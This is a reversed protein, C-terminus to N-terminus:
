MGRSLELYERLAPITVLSSPCENSHAGQNALKERESIHSAPTVDLRRYISGWKRLNVVVAWSGNKRM